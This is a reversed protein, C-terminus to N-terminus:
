QNNKLKQEVIDAPYAEALSSIEKVFQNFKLEWIKAEEETYPYLGIGNQVGKANSEVMRQMIEPVQDSNDLLPLISRFIIAWDKLGEYDLRRFIGMLTMWSGFDYRFCKDIDEKDALGNEALYLAERFSAYMLRNTVFGRINKKLLIPEKGWQEALQYVWEVVEISTQDGCVIEMFRTNYAPEAWHIGIFREPDAVFKQLNGIPIASTNTAIVTNKRVVDAIKGYVEEKVNMKEVVCELVLSCQALDSYDESITLASMYLDLSQTSKNDNLYERLLDRIRDFAEEKEGRIPAIAVLPHGSLLFSVAISRGMLGLGVLGVKIESLTVQEAQIM